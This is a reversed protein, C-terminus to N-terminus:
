QDLMEKVRHPKDVKSFDFEKKIDEKSSKKVKSRGQMPGFGGALDSLNLFSINPMGPIVFPNGNEPEKKGEPEKEKGKDEPNSEEGSGTEINETVSSNDEAKPSAYNQGLNFINSLDMERVQEMSKRLCDQCISMGNPLHFVDKKSTITKRCVCCIETIENDEEPTKYEESM